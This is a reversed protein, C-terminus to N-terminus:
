QPCCAGYRSGTVFNVSACKGGKTGNLTIFAGTDDCAYAQPRAPDPPEAPYFDLCDADSGAVRKCMGAPKAGGSGGGSSTGAHSATGATATGGQSTGAATSGASAGGMGGGGGKGGPLDLSISGASGGSGGSGAKTQEIESGPGTDEGSCGGAIGVLIAGVGCWTTRRM